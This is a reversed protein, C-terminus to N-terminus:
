NIIITILFENAINQMLYAFSFTFGSDMLNNILTDNNFSYEYNLKMFKIYQHKKISNLITVTKSNLSNIYNNSLEISLKEKITDDKDKLREGTITTLLYASIQFPDDNMKINNKEYFSTNKAFINFSNRIDKPAENLILSFYSKCPNDSKEIFESIIKLNLEKSLDTWKQIIKDNNLVKNKFRKISNFLEKKFFLSRSADRIQAKHMSLARNDSDRLTIMLILEEFLMNLDNFINILGEKNDEILESFVESSMICFRANSKLIEDNLLQIYNKYDLDREKPLAHHPNIYAGPLLNHQMSDKYIMTKPYIINFKSLNSSNIYLFKQFSSTATHHLGIHLICKM